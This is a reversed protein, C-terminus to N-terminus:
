LGPAAFIQGHAFIMRALAPLAVLLGITSVLKVVTPANTLRRFVTWWLTLGLLPAFVGLCVVAAPVIAWGSEHVLEYYLEAVVYAVAGHALNLVRTTKYTLVLGISSIAYLAGLILGSVIYASM